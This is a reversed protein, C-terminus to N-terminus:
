TSHSPSHPMGKLTIYNVSPDLQFINPNSAIAYIFTSSDSEAHQCASLVIVHLDVDVPNIDLYVCIKFLQCDRSSM